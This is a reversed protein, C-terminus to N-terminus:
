TLSHQLFFRVMERSADPGRPDTYSGQPSGGSWAHGAGQLVWQELISRESSDSEITRVFSMGGAARGRVVTTKLDTEFKAQAIVDDGNLPNVTKDADGHFVITPVLTRSGRASTAAAGVGNRMAAFGTAMDHAAGCALGSHVGVAAYLDPYTAAMVAAAAGGASLGAVYVRGAAVPFDRAVQRTIGAILSPEGNDRRQENSEFWNWCRSPNASTSQAPYAVFLGQEEACENMKTGAAFDDPSQSCGHLMMVLPLPEGRYCSPIYLKYSRSGAENAFDGTEFTAGAPVVVKGPRLAGAAREWGGPLDFKRLRDRFADSTSTSRSGDDERQTAESAPRTPPTTWASGTELSPPVMDLVPAMGNDAEKKVSGAAAPAAGGRLVAMAEELRGERTLRLAEMMDVGPRIMM